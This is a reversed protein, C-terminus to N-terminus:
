DRQQGFTKGLPFDAFFNLAANVGDVVLDAPEVGLEIRTVQPFSHGFGISVPDDVSGAVGVDYGTLDAASGQKSITLCYRKTSNFIRRQSVASPLIWSVKAAFECRLRLRVIPPFDM